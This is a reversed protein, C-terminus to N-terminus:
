PSTDELDGTDENRDSKECVRRGLSIVIICGHIICITMNCMLASMHCM